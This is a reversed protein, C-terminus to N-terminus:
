RGCCKGEFRNVILKIFRFFFKQNLLESLICFQKRIFSFFQSFVENEMGRDQIEDQLNILIRDFEQVAEVRDTSEPGFAHGMADIAEYYVLGLQWEDAEFHDLIESLANNTDNIPNTWTWYSQYSQCYTPVKGKIKVQCGDWWYVATKLDHKEANIWIPEAGNWWHPHSANLNPAMM